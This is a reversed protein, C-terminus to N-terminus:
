PLKTVHNSVIDVLKKSFEQPGLIEDVAGNRSLTWCKAQTADTTFAEMHNWPNVGWKLVEMELLSISPMM